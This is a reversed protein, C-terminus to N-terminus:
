VEVLMKSGIKCCIQRDLASQRPVERKKRNAHANKDFM